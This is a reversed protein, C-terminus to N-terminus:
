ANSIGYLYATSYQSITQGPAYIGIANIAATQSWLSADLQESATTANNESVTDASFSKNNSGAYNPIYVEGNNFTNITATGGTVRGIAIATDTFSIASAGDGRLSLSTQNASSTNVNLYTANSINVSGCRLSYKLCLDTYTSPISTFDISSAGLVGVTVSSILTFTTAM